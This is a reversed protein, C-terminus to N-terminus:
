ASVPPPTPSLGPTQEFLARAAAVEDATWGADAVVTEPKVYDRTGAISDLVAYHSGISGDQRRRGAPTVYRIPRSVAYRGRLPSQFRWVRGLADAVFDPYNVMLRRPFLGDPDEFPDEAASPHVGIAPAMGNSIANVITSRSVGRQVGDDRTLGFVEKGYKTIFSSIPGTWGKFKGRTVPKIRVPTGDEEFRYASYDEPRFSNYRASQPTM